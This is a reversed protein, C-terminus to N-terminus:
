VRIKDKEEEKRKRIADIAEDSRLIYETHPIKQLDIEGPYQRSPVKRIFPEEITLKQYKEM